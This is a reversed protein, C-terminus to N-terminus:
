KLAVGDLWSWSDEEDNRSEVPVMRMDGEADSERLGNGKSIPELALQPGLTEAEFVKM